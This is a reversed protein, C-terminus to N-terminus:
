EDKLVEKILNKYDIAPNSKPAYSFISTLNIQSEKIAIGERINTKYLKTNLQKATAELMEAIDRSLVSRSSYRTLVIGKIKLNPNCYKKVAEITKTLQGIGQLSFIDAQSPIIVGTSATLANVSLLGLSPPTDIIIYDYNNLVPELVEKLKYEKGTNKLLTEINSLDANSRILDGQPTKQIAKEIECNDMLVDIASYAEQNAGLSYSLNGQADLDIFLVRKKHLQHLGAGINQATTSKGVGGKQNIVTIIEKM